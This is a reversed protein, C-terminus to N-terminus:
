RRLAKQEFRELKEIWEPFVPVTQKKDYDYCVMVSRARAVPRSIGSERQRLEYELEFSKTGIRTCRVAIEHDAPTEIPMLFDVSMSALIVPPKKWLHDPIGAIRRFYGMRAEEFLTFYVANNVHGLLDFDSFRLQM